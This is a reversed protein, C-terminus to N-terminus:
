QPGEAGIRTMEAWERIIMRLAASYGREGLDLRYVLARVIDDTRRDLKVLKRPLDGNKRNDLREAKM